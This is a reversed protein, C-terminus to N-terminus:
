KGTTQISRASKEANLVNKIKVMLEYERDGVAKVDYICFLKEYDGIKNKEFSGILQEELHKEAETCNKRVKNWYIYKYVKFEIKSFEDQIDETDAKVDHVNLESQEGSSGDEIRKGFATIVDSSASAVSNDHMVDSRVETTSALREAARRERRRIRSPSVKKKRQEFFREQLVGGSYKGLGLTLSVSAEGAHTEFVLKADKGSKWLNSFKWIFSNTEMNFLNGDAMKM